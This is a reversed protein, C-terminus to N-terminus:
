GLTAANIRRMNSLKTNAMPNNPDRPEPRLWAAPV